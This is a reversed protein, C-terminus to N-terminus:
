QDDNKESEHQIRKALETGDIAGTLPNRKIGDGLMEAVLVTDDVPRRNPYSDGVSPNPAAKAEAIELNTEYEVLDKHMM